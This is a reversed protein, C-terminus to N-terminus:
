PGAPSPYDPSANRGTARGGGDFAGTGTGIGRCPAMSLRWSADIGWWRAAVRIGPRAAGAARAGALAANRRRVRPRTSSSDGM